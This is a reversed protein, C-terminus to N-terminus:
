CGIEGYQFSLAEWQMCQLYNCCRPLTIGTKTRIQSASGLAVTPLHPYSWLAASPKKRSGNGRERPWPSEKACGAPPSEEATGERGGVESGARGSDGPSTRCAHREAHHVRHRQESARHQLATRLGYGLAACRGAVAAYWPPHSSRRGATAWIVLM